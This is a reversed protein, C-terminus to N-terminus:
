AQNSRPDLRRESLRRIPQIRSPFRDAGIQVADHGWRVSSKRKRRDERSGAGKAIKPVRVGDVPKIGYATLEARQDSAAM